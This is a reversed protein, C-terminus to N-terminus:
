AGNRDLVRVADWKVKADSAFRGYRKVTLNIDSHGLLESVVTIPVGRTLEDVIQRARTSLPIERWKNHKPKWARGNVMRVRRQTEVRICNRPLDVSGFTLAFVEGRRLGTESVFEIISRMLPAVGEYATCADLLRQLEDETPPVIAESDDEPLLDIRPPSAIV